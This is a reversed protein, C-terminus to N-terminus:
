RKIAKPRKFKGSKKLDAAIFSVTAGTALDILFDGWSIQKKLRKEYEDKVLRLHDYKYEPVYITKKKSVALDEV